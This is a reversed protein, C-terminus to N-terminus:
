TIDRGRICMIITSFLIITCDLPVSRSSYRRIFIACGSHSRHGVRLLRRVVALDFVSRVENKEQEQKDKSNQLHQQQQVSLPTTTTAVLKIFKSERWSQCM